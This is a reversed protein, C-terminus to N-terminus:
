IVSAINFWSYTAMINFWKECDYSMKDLTCSFSTDSVMKNVIGQYFIKAETEGKYNKIEDKLTVRTGTILENM